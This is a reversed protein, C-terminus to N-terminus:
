SIYQCKQKILLGLPCEVDFGPPNWTSIVNIRWLGFKSLNGRWKWTSKRRLKSPQFIWTTELHKKRHLKSPRFICTTERVKKSTIEITTFYVNNGRVKESTIEITWFDVKSGRVKESTIERTSIDVINRSEVINNRSLKSPRFIEKTQVFKKQRFKLSISTTKPLSYALSFM